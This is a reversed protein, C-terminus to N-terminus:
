SVVFFCETVGHAIPILYKEDKIKHEDCFNQLAQVKGCTREGVGSVKSLFARYQHPGSSCDRAVNGATSKSANQNGRKSESMKRRGEVQIADAEHRYSLHFFAARQGPTMNRRTAEIRAIEWPNRKDTKRRTSNSRRYRCFM